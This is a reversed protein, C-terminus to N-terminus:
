GEEYELQLQRELPIKRGFQFNILKCDLDINQNHDLGVVKVSNGGYWEIHDFDVYNKAKGLIFGLQQWELSMDDEHYAACFFESNYFAHLEGSLVTHTFDM